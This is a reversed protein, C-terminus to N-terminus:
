GDGEFDTGVYGAYGSDGEIAKKLVDMWIGADHNDKAAVAKAYKYAAFVHGDEDLRAIPFGSNRLYFGQAIYGALENDIWAMKVRTLDFYAHVSEHVVLADFARSWTELSKAFRFINGRSQYQATGDPISRSNDITITGDKLAAVVTAFNSGDVNVAAGSKGTFSFNIRKTESSQLIKTILKDMDNDEFELM